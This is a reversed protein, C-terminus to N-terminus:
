CSSRVSGAVSPVDGLNKFLALARKYQFEADSLRGVNYNLSGLNTLIRPELEPFRAKSLELAEEYFRRARDLDGTNAFVNALNSAVVVQEKSEGSGKLIDLAQQLSSLSADYNGIAQYASGLSNLTAALQSLDGLQRQLAAVEQLSAIAAIYEDQAQHKKRV